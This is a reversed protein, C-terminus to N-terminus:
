KLNQKIIQIINPKVENIARELFKAQGIPHYNSLNEHVYIAYPATYRVSLTVKQTTQTINKKVSDRLTGTDVPVYKTSRKIIDDAIINLAKKIKPIM